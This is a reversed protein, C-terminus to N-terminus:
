FDWGVGHGATSAGFLAIRGIADGAYAGSLYAAAPNKTVVASIAHGAPIAYGTPVGVKALATVAFGGLVGPVFGGKLMGKIGRGAYSAARRAYHKKVMKGSRVALRKPAARRHQYRWLPNSSNWAM